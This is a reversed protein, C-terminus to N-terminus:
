QLIVGQLVQAIIIIFQPMTLTTQSFLYWSPASLSVINAVAM